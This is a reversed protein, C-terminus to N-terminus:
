TKVNLLRSYSRHFRGKFEDSQATVASEFDLHSCPLFAYKRKTLYLYYCTYCTLPLSTMHVPVYVINTVDLTKNPEPDDPFDPLPKKKKKRGGGGCM